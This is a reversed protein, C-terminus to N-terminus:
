LDDFVDQVHGADDGTLDPEVSLGDIQRRQHLRGYLGHHRGGIRFLDGDLERQIRDGRRDCAVVDSQLLDDPIEHAVGHLECRAAAPYGYSEFSDIVLDLDADAVGPDADTWIEQRM